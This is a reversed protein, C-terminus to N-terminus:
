PSMLGVFLSRAAPGSHVLMAAGTAFQLTGTFSGSFTAGDTADLSLRTTPSM